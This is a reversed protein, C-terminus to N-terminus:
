QIFCSKKRKPTSVPPPPPMPGIVPRECVLLDVMGEYNKAKAGQLAAWAHPTCPDMGAGLLLLVVEQRTDPSLNTTRVQPALYQIVTHDKADAVETDAGLGLLFRAKRLIDRQTECSVLVCMLPTQGFVNTSNPDYLELDALYRLMKLSERRGSHDIVFHTKSCAMHLATNGHKKDTIHLDCRGSAVLTQCIVISNSRVAFHFPAFGDFSLCNPDCFPTSLLVNAVAANHKSDCAEHLPTKGVMNRASVLAQGEESSVLAEAVRARGYQAAEHLLNNGNNFQDVETLDCKLSRILLIAASENGKRIALRLATDGAGDKINCLINHDILKQLVAEGKGIALHLATQRKIATLVNIDWRSNSHRLLVDLVSAEKAGVTADVHNNTAFHLASYGSALDILNIDCRQDEVLLKAAEVCGHISAYHLPTRGDDDTRNIDCSGNRLMFNLVDVQNHEAAFHLASYKGTAEFDLPASFDVSPVESILQQLRDVSRLKIADILSSSSYHAPSAHHYM